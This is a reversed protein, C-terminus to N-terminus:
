QGSFVGQYGIKPTGSSAVEIIMVVYVELAAFRTLHIHLGMVVLWEVVMMWRRDLLLFRENWWEDDLCVLNPRMGGSKGRSWGYVDEM